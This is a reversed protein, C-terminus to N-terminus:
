VILHYFREGGQKAFMERHEGEFIKLAAGRKLADPVFQFLPEKDKAPRSLAVIDPNREVYHVTQYPRAYAAETGTALGLIAIPPESWIAVMHGRPDGSLGVLSAVMRADAHFTNSPGPFWNYKQM